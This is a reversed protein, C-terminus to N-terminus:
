DAAGRVHVWITAQVRAVPEGADAAVAALAGALVDYKRPTLCGIDVGAADIMWSDVVAASEDGTLARYFAAVKRGRLNVAAFPEGALIRSAKRYSEGLIGWPAPTDDPELGLSWRAGALNNSWTAQPSLVAVVAAVTRRDYGSERSLERIVSRQRRYWRAGHRRTDDSAEVYHRAYAGAIGNADLDTARIM